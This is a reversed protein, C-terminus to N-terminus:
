SSDALAFRFGDSMGNRWNVWNHGANRINLSAVSGKNGLADALRRNSSLLWELSGCQFHWRIPRQVSDYVSALFSENGSFPYNLDMDESFLFAGSQTVVTQFLEPEQHALQAALLGGLSAGWATRRGDCPVRDEVFPLVENILFERYSSNFAYEKTRAVSPVFVLHAPGVVGAALLRDLIQPAKGWGYYAKGDQFLIHPLAAEAMGPPSYVLLSRSQKLIRSDLTLRMLRGRPRQRGVEGDPDPRYQPGTINCAFELWPNLRPSHNGPDPRLAGSGDQWAYEFYADDPLDFPELRDVPLPDKKWDTLDSFLHTAWGPPTLEIRM